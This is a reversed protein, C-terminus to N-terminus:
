RGNRDPYILPDRWAGFHHQLARRAYHAAQRSSTHPLQMAITETIQARQGDSLSELARDVASALKKPYLVALAEDNLYWRIDKDEGIERDVFGYRKMWAFRTSVCRRGHETDLGIQEAIEKASARGDGNSAQELAYFLDRDSFHQLRLSRPAM